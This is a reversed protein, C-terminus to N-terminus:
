KERSGLQLQRWEERAKGSESWSCSCVVAVYSTNRDLSWGSPAGLNMCLPSPSSINPPVSSRIRLLVTAEQFRFTTRLRGPEGQMCGLKKRTEKERRLILPVTTEKESYAAGYLAAHDSLKLPLSPSLPGWLRGPCQLGHLSEARRACINQFFPPAAGSMRQCQSSRQKAKGEKTSLREQLICPSTRGKDSYSKEPEPEGM